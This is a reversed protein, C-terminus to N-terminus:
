PLVAEIMEVGVDGDVVMIEAGPALLVATPIAGDQEWRATVTWDVDAVVPFGLGYTDAWAALDAQTPTEGEANEGLLAIIMLGQDQFGEYLTQIQEADRICAPSWAAWAVVLVAHDCFDHLRVTDGDQDLLAFNEAVQGVSDGTAVVSDRCADITWGGAYPHDTGDLPDTLTEEGDLYTDGDTDPNTPDTGIVEEEARSLGDADIDADPDPEGTDSDTPPPSDASSDGSPSDAPSDVAGSDGDASDGAVPATDDQPGGGSKDAGDQCGVALAVLGWRWTRM